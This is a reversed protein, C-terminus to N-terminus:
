RSPRLILFAGDYYTLGIEDGRGLVIQSGGAAAPGLGGNRCRPRLVLSRGLPRDEWGFQGPEAGYQEAFWRRTSRLTREVTSVECHEAAFHVGSQDARLVKSMYLSDNEQLAAVGPRIRVGSVIWAGRMRCAAHGARSDSARCASLRDLDDLRVRYAERLCRQLEDSGAGASSCWADRERRWQDQDDRLADAEVNDLQPLLALHRETLRRDLQRLESSRCIAGDAAGVSSRCSVGQARSACAAAGCLVVGLLFARRM